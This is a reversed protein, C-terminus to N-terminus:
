SLGGTFVLPRIRERIDDIEVSMVELKSAPLSLPSSADAGISACASSNMASPATISDFRCALFDENEIFGRTSEGYPGGAAVKKM